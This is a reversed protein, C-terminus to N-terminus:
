YIENIKKLKFCFTKTLPLSHLQPSETFPNECLLVLSPFTFFCLSIFVYFWDSDSFYDKM